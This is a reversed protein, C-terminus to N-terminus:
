IGSIHVFDQDVAGAAAVNQDKCCATNEAIDALTIGSLFAVLRDHIRHIPSRVPCCAVLKCEGDDAKGGDELEHEICQVLQVPGEVAAIIDTLTIKDPPLALTYGGRPGRVSRALGKQALLKLLNMLLPLPMNYKAAIERASSFGAPEHALHALAILAYDTKRTLTLM